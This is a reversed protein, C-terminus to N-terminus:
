ADLVNELFGLARHAPTEEYARSTYPNFEKFSGIDDDIMYFRKLELHEAFLMMLKRKRGIGLM